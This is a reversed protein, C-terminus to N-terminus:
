KTKAAFRVACINPEDSWPLEFCEKWQWSVKTTILIYSCKGALSCLEWSCICQIRKIASRHRLPSAAMRCFNVNVTIIQGGAEEMGRRERERLLCISLSLFVCKETNLGINSKPCSELSTIHLGGSSKLPPYCSMFRWRLEMACLLCVSTVTVFDTQWCEAFRDM